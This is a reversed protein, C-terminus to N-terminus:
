ITHDIYFTNFYSLSGVYVEQCSRRAGQRRGERRRREPLAARLGDRAAGRAGGARGPAAPQAGASVGHLDEHQRRVRLHEGRDSM